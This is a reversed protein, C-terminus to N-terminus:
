GKAGRIIINYARTYCLTYCFLQVHIFVTRGAPIDGIDISTTCTRACTIKKVGSVAQVHKENYAFIIQTYMCVNYM